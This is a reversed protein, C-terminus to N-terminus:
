SIYTISKNILTYM